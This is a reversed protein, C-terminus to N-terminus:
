EVDLVEQRRSEDLEEYLEIVADVHRELTHALAVRRAAQGMEARASADLLRRMCGAVAHVDEPDDIIFGAAEGAMLEAAGNFRTTVVPLGSAWAELAVMSCADHRTLHVLADAAAYYPSVDDVRGIFTTEREIGLRRALAVCRDSQSGVVVFHARRGDRKLKAVAHLAQPVGKLEPKLAVSLFLAEDALGLARRVPERHEVGREPAFREVDVGNPVVRLRDPSLRHVRQFDDRVMRSPSLVLCRSEGAQLVEVRLMERLNRSARRRLRAPARRGRPLSGLSREWASWRSGAQLHLVDCHWGVGCDHIVDLELEAIRAEVLRARDLRSDICPVPHLAVADPVAAPVFDFALVHVEIDRRALAAVFQAAWQELGGREPDFHELVLGVRM